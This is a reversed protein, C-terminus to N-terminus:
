PRQKKNRRGDMGWETHDSVKRVFSDAKRLRSLYDRRVIRRHPSADLADVIHFLEEQGSIWSHPDYRLLSFPKSFSYLSKGGDKRFYEHFYSLVLERVNRYVPDRYRLVAHNTKSIAGFGGSRRFLAVVHDEDRDTKFDLLLPKEGQIWLACAALLAGEFCHAKGAKLTRAVSMYTEGEHEFNIPLDDLFDQIKSPTDLSKLLGFERASLGFREPHAFTNRAKVKM